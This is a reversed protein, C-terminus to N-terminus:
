VTITITSYLWMSNTIDPVGKTQSIIVLSRDIVLGYGAASDKLFLSVFSGEGNGQGNPYVKLCSFSM